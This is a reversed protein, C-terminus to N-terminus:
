QLISLRIEFVSWVLVPSTVPNPKLQILNVLLYVLYCVYAGDNNLLDTELLLSCEETTLLGDASALTWDWISASM